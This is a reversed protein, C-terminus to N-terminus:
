KVADAVGLRQGLQFRDEVLEVVVMDVDVKQRRLNAPGGVEDRQAPRTDFRGSQLDGPDDAPRGVLDSRAELEDPDPCNADITLRGGDQGTGQNAADLVETEADVRIRSGDISASTVSGVAGGPVGARDAALEGFAGVAEGDDFVISVGVGGDRVSPESEDDSEDDGEVELVLQLVAGDGEGLVFM